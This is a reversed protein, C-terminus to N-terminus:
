AFVGMMLGFIFFPLVYAILLGFALGFGFRFGIAVWGAFKLEEIDM